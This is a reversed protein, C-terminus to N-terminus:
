NQDIPLSNALQRIEDLPSQTAELTDEKMAMPKDEEPTFEFCIKLKGKQWGKLGPQLLSVTVGSIFSDMATKEILEELLDASSYKCSKRIKSFFLQAEQLSLMDAEQPLIDNIEQQFNPIGYNTSVRVQRLISDIEELSVALDTKENIKDILEDITFTSHSGLIKMTNTDLCRIVAQSDVIIKTTQNNM